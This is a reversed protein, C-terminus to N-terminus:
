ILISVVLVGDSKGLSWCGCSGCCGTKLRSRSSGGMVGRGVISGLVFIMLLSRGVRRTLLMTKVILLMM